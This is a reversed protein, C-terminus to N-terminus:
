GSCKHLCCHIATNKAYSALFYNPYQTKTPEPFCLGLIRIIKQCAIRFFLESIPDKNARPLLLLIELHLRTYADMGMQKALQRYRKRLGSTYDFNKITMLAEFTDLYPHSIEKENM